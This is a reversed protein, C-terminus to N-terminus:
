DAPPDDGLSDVVTNMIRMAARRQHATLTELRSVLEERDSLNPAMDPPVIDELKANLARVIRLVISFAPDRFGREIESQYNTSIGAAEALSRQSMGRAKRITRIREGLAASVQQFPRKKNTTV